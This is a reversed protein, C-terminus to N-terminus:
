NRARGTAAGAVLVIVGAGLLVWGWNLPATKERSAEVEVQGFDVVKDRDEYKFMGAAMLGGLVVLIAGVILAPIRM